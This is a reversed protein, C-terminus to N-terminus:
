ISLLSTQKPKIPSFIGLKLIKNESDFLHEWASEMGQRQMKDNGVNAIVAWAQALLDIKCEMQTHSGVPTKDGYFARIFWKGDWANESIAKSLSEANLAIKQAEKKGGFLRLFCRAVYVYFMSLWVSEGLGGEGIADMADNWDGSGMLLLGHAGTVYANEFARICHNYLSSAEGYEFSSMFRSEENEDLMKAKLFPTVEDFIAKDGTFLAYKLAVFPLFLKDDSIRTRVGSLPLRQALPTDCLRYDENFWHLVDGEEFQRASCLLIHRRAVDTDKYMIALMDQLQDRFGYAGSCQYYSTRAMYRIGYIQKMLKNNFFIDLEKCPTEIKICADNIEGEYLGRRAMQIFDRFIQYKDNKDTIELATLAFRVMVKSEQPVTIHTVIVGCDATKTDYETHYIGKVVALPTDYTYGRGFFEDKKSIWGVVGKDCSMVVSTDGYASTVELLSLGVDGRAFM